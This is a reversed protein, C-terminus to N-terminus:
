LFVIVGNKRFAAKLYYYSKYKNFINYKDDLVIMEEELGNDLKHESGIVVKNTNDLISLGHNNKLYTAVSKPKGSVRVLDLQRKFDAMSDLLLQKEHKVAYEEELMGPVTDQTVGSDWHLDEDNYYDQGMHSTTRLAYLIKLLGEDEWPKHKGLDQKKRKLQRIKLTVWITRCINSRLRPVGLYTRGIQELITNINALNGNIGIPGAYDSLHKRGVATRRYFFRGIVLSVMDADKLKINSVMTMCCGFKERLLSAGNKANRPTPLVQTLDNYTVDIHSNRALVKGVDGKRPPPTFFPKLAALGRSMLKFHKITVGSDRLRKCIDELSEINDMYLHTEDQYGYETDGVGQKRDYVKHINEGARKLISECLDIDNALLRDMIPTISLKTINDVMRTFKAYVTPEDFDPMRGRTVKRGKGVKKNNNYEIAHSKIPKQYDLNFWKYSDDFCTKDADRGGVFVANRVYRYFTGIPANVNTNRTSPLVHSQRLFDDLGGVPINSYMTRGGRMFLSKLVLSMQDIDSDFRHIVPEITINTYKVLPGFECPFILTTVSEITPLRGLACANRIGRIFRQNEKYCGRFDECGILLGATALDDEYKRMHLLDLIPINNESESLEFQNAHCINEVKFDCCFEWCAERLRRIQGMENGELDFLHKDKAKHDESCIAVGFTVTIQIFTTILFGLFKRQDALLSVVGDSSANLLVYDLKVINSVDGHRLTIDSGYESIIYSVGDIDVTTKGVEIGYFSPDYMMYKYYTDLHKSFVMHNISLIGGSNHFSGGDGLFELLIDKLQQYSLFCDRPFPDNDDELGMAINENEMNMEIDSESLPEILSSHLPPFKRDCITEQKYVRKPKKHENKERLERELKEIRKKYKELEKEIGGMIKKNEFNGDDM